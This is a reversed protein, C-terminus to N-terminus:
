FTIRAGIQVQRANEGYNYKPDWFTQTDDLEPDNTGLQLHNLVNYASFQLQLNYRERFKMNKFISADLNNWRNARLTNRGVGPFPNNQAGAIDSNNWLWHVADPTTATPPPAIPNGLEDYPSFLYTFYSALTYYGPAVISPDGAVFDGLFAAGLSNLYIGTSKIPAKANSVVPRCTSVSSNFSSAFNGDCYNSLGPFAHPGSGLIAQGYDVFFPTVPQGTDFTWIGNLQYGGLLLDVLHGHGKPSPVDYVFSASAVHPISNGSIGREAVNSDFPNEAFAITTGGGFKGFIESANDITRSYTYAFTASLHHYQHTTATLQLGNYNSFATNARLRVRTKTCDTRRYGIQTPDACFMSPSLVNPYEQATQRLRPNANLSQFLGVTHNGVYRVGFVVDNNPGWELGLTYSEAYPNHFNKTVLTQNRSNPNVGLPISPLNLARVDSGNTGTAPICPSAATCGITGLNIVPAATASNLFINYFAPDFNIAFGGRIVLRPTVEKPNYAFGVRPQFNKYHQDVEPFTRQDLPLSTKWFATAPNSERKVTEDHLLNVAQGFYEWRLGLNLTLDSTTKWDDQIYGAADPETFHITFNGDGLNLIASNNLFSGLSSSSYSGVYNPLFGNPSIQYSWEGGFSLTHRGHTWTANDQVQTVKVTRGQPATLASSYGYGLVSAGDPLSGSISVPSFCKEPSNVVCDAVSGGQFHVKSEQFSYRLQNVWSPSFTHTIDGGISHTTAPVDYWRGGALDTATSDAYAGTYPNDQYFYRVFLHDKETPQWDIRGLLEEDDNRGSVQRIVPAFDVPVDVGNVHYTASDDTVIPGPHPNGIKIGYPGSKVLSAVSGSNPAAAQLRALSDPTPFLNASGSSYTGEGQHNRQFYIGAFGWLKDKIIPAGITGGFNNQVFRPLTPVICTSTDTVGSACYGQAPSKQGQLFAEGWNGEYLEFASGHISNSGSKTLYNVVTGMNRGYQASFTNTIVQVGAIADQNGFFVQPGAVSNDNNSQGDIEFNNSRGRQGNASFTAGNHNSFNNDHTQVVGPELLTITDFGNNVPLNALQITDFTTSVQAESTNILPNVATVEVTAQVGSPKLTVKGLDRTGVNIVVDKLTVQGFGPATFTVTYTGVPLNLLSFGGDQRSTQVVRAGTATNLVEISANPVVAESQDMTTGTLGGTTIGQGFAAHPVLTLSGFGLGLVAGLFLARLLKSSM